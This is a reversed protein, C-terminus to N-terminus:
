CASCARIQLETKPKLLDPKEEKIPEHLAYGKQERKERIKRALTM